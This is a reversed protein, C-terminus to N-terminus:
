KKPGSKRREINRLNEQYKAKSQQYLLDMYVEEAAWQYVEYPKCGYRSAMSEVIGYTGFTHLAAIGAEEQDETPPDAALDKFREFLKNLDQYIVAGLAMCNVAPGTPEGFYIRVLEPFLLYPKQNKQMYVRAIEAKEYTAATVDVEPIDFGPGINAQLDDLDEIFSVLEYLSLIQDSDLTRLEEPTIDSLASIVARPSEKGIRRLDEARVEAWSTKITNSNKGFKVTVM